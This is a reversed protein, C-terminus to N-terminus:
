LIPKGPARTLRATRDRLEDLVVRMAYDDEGVPDFQGKAAAGPVSYRPTGWAGSPRLGHRWAGEFDIPRLSGADTLVLNEPKCDRWAWGADHIAQIVSALDRAIDAARPAPLRRRRGLLQQLTSGAIHELVLYRGDEVDFEALVRPVPIGARRLSRLVRAEHRMRWYGDHGDPDTEGHRLGQKVICLHAPARTLDLALFVGGRGRQRLVEFIRYDLALPSWTRPPEASGATPLLPDTVWSPVAEGPERRDRVLRGRPNVIAGVRAGNRAKMTRDDFAGYRYFVASGPAYRRDFPVRPHPIGLTLQHLRPALHALHTDDRCYVTLCKGIQSFDGLGANLTDLFRLDVPGKYAAGDADLFPGVRRLLSGASLITASLHLKWGQRLLGAEGGASHRWPSGASAM